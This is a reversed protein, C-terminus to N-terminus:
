IGTHLAFHGVPDGVLSAVLGEGVLTPRDADPGRLVRPVPDADLGWVAALLHLDGGLVLEKDVVLFVGEEGLIAHGPLASGIIKRIAAESKMDWETVLDVAGKNRWTARPVAFGERLIGGAELLATKIVHAVDNM